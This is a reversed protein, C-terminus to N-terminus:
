KIVVKGGINGGNTLLLCCYYLGAPAGAPQWRYSGAPGDVRAEHVKEGKANYICLSAARGAPWSLFVEGESPNPFILLSGAAVAEHLGSAMEVSFSFERACQAADTVTLFYMGPSLASLATTTDGTSWLYSYPPMGGSTTSLSIAGGQGTSAPAVEAEVQIPLPAELAASATDTCGFSDSLTFYYQGAPLSDQGTGMAGAEDQWTYRYPADGNTSFSVAGDAAGPCTPPKIEIGSIRFYEREYAGLDIAGELIRPGGDLATQIGLSDAPRNDGANIAPSCAALRLNGGAPDFFLPDTAFLMGEGCAQAAGALDCTDASLLCHSINWDYLNLPWGMPAGNAFHRFIDPNAARRLISNKVTITNYYHENDFDPDWNKAIDVEGNDYFTCNTILSEAVGPKGSDISLAGTNEAFLCNDIVNHSEVLSEIFGRIRIAGGLPHNGNNRIFECHSIRSHLINDFSLDIYIGGGRSKAMNEKFQCNNLNLFSVTKQLDLFVGGGPSFTAVNNLFRSNEINIVATDKFSTFNALALIVAGGVNGSNNQFLCSDITLWSKSCYSILSIAGGQSITSNNVFNGNNLKLPQCFSDYHIAGGGIWSTNNEFTCHSFHLTDAEANTGQKFFAGGINIARNHAFYCNYFQPLLPQEGLGDSGFAGGERGTNHTFTCNSIRIYAEEEANANSLFIGGGYRDGFLTGDAQGHSIHLGDISTARDTSIARVVHYSNDLSDGPLGIDGSLLCTNAQWDRQALRDEYGAFGGYLHVGSKLVFSATRDGDDTPYYVGDAIWISDGYQAAALADQLRTFATAWSKGDQAPGPAHEDVYLQGSYRCASQGFSAYWVGENTSLCRVQYQLECGGGGVCFASPFPYILDGVGELWNTQYIDIPWNPDYHEGLFLVDLSKRLTPGYFVEDTRRVRYKVTDEFTFVVPPRIIYASDQYEMEFDYLLYQRGTCDADRRYYVRRGEVRYLGAATTDGPSHAEFVPTWWQGCHREEPRTFITVEGQIDPFTNYSITWVPEQSALPFSQAFLTLWISCFFLTSITKAM